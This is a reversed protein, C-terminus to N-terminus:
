RHGILAAQSSRQRPVESSLPCSADPTPSADEIDADHRYSAAIDKFEKNAQPDTMTKAVRDAVIAQERLYDSWATMHNPELLFGRM